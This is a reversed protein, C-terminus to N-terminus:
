ETDTPDTHHKELREDDGVTDCKKEEEEEKVTRCNEASEHMHCKTAVYLDAPWFLSVGGGVDKWLFLIMKSDGKVRLLRDTDRRHQLWPFVEDSTRVLNLEWMAATFYLASLIM